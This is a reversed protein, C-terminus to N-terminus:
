KIMKEANSKAKLKASQESNGTGKAIIQKGNSEYTGTVTYIFGIGGGVIDVEESIVTLTMSNTNENPVTSEAGSNSENTPQEIQDSSGETSGTMEQTENTRLTESDFNQGSEVIPTESLPDSSVQTDTPISTVGITVEPLLNPFEAVKTVPDKKDNNQSDSVDTSSDAETSTNNQTNSPTGGLKYGGNWFDDSTSAIYDNDETITSEGVVRIGGTNLKAFIEQLGLNRASTLDIKAEIYTPLDNFSLQPGLKIDVGTCEMDGSCFIPRLPNGITVHWPTSPGGALANIIAYFRIKYKAKIFDKVYDPVNELVGLLLTKADDLMKSGSADEEGDEGDKKKGIDSLGEKVKSIASQLSSTIANIFDTILGIPDNSIDRLLKNVNNGADTQKGLYFSSRSTGMNLLNHIIDAYVITPDVGNIFKQEYRITFSVNVKCKVGSGRQDEDLLTRTRGEKILNPDGQPIPPVDVVKGSSDVFKDGDFKVGEGFLGLSAMIQRQLLLSAGPLPVANVGGELISGLGGGLKFGFDNGLENLLKTFSVEADSWEENVKFKLFDESEKIYGIVTSLPKYTADTESYLDDVVGIPFRRCIILRNNPYVGFDSNYVFDAYNIEVRPGIEKLKTIINQTSIDYVDKHRETESSVIKGSKNSQRLFHKENENKNASFLTEIKGNEEKYSFANEEAILGLPSATYRSM